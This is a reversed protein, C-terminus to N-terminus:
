ILGTLQQGQKNRNAIATFFVQINDTMAVFPHQASPQCISTEEVHFVLFPSQLLAHFAQFGNHELVTQSRHIVLYQPHLRRRQLKPFDQLRVRCRQLLHFPCGIQGFRIQYSAHHALKRFQLADHAPFVGFEVTFIGSYRLANIFMVQRAKGAILQRLSHRATQDANRILQIINHSGEAATQNRCTRLIGVRQPTLSM